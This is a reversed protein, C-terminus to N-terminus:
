PKPDPLNPWLGLAEMFSGYAILHGRQKRTAVTIHSATLMDGVWDM